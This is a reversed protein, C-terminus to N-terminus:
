KQNTLRMWLILIFMKPLALQRKFRKPEHVLRWLWEFGANRWALPPRKKVGALYDFTGGVGMMVPVNLENKHQHIWIDQKPAGWAILLISPQHRLITPIVEPDDPSGEYVGAIKLTPHETTWLDAVKQAVGNRGGLLFISFGQEAAMKAIFQTLDVGTIRSPIPQHLLKAALVIGAGDAVSIDASNLTAKFLPNHRAEMVFETNVTCIQHPTKSDVFRHVQALIQDLTLLDIKIDM